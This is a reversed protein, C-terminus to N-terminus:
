KTVKLAGTLQLEAGGTRVDGDVTFATIYVAGLRSKVSVSAAAKNSVSYTLSTGAKNTVKLKLASLDIVHDTKTINFCYFDIITKKAVGDYAWAAGYNPYCYVAGGLAEGKFGSWTDLNVGDTATLTGAVAITKGTARVDGPIPGLELYRVNVQPGDGGGAQMQMGVVSTIAKNDIKAGSLLVDGYYEAPALVAVSVSSSKKADDYSIFSRTLDVSYGKPVVIKDAAIKSSTVLTVTGAVKVAKGFRADGVPQAADDYGGVVCRTEGAPIKIVEPGASAYSAAAVTWNLKASVAIEKTGSNKLNVCVRSVNSYKPGSYINTASYFWDKVVSTTGLKVGAPLKIGSTDFTSLTATTFTAKLDKAVRNLSLDQDSFGFEWYFDDNAAAYINASPTTLAAGDFTVKTATLSIDKATSNRGMLMVMTGWNPNGYIYFSTFTLGKAALSSKILDSTTSRVNMVGKLAIKTIATFDVISEFPSGPDNSWYVSYPNDTSEDYYLDLNDLKYNTTKGAVVIDVSFNTILYEGPKPNTTIASLSLANTDVFDPASNWKFGSANKMDLGTSVVVPSGAAQASNSASFVTFGVALLFALVIASIKRSLSNPM